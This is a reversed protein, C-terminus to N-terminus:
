RRPARRAVRVICWGVAGVLTVIAVASGVTSLVRATPDDPGLVAVVMGLAVAAGSCLCLAALVVIQGVSRRRPTTMPPLMRESQRQYM